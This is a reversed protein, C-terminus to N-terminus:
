DLFKGERYTLVRIARRLFINMCINGVYVEKARLFDILRVRTTICIYIYIYIYIYIHMVASTYSLLSFFINTM